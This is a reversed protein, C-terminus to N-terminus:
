KKKRRYIISLNNFTLVKMEGILQLPQVVRTLGKLMLLDVAKVILVFDNNEGSTNVAAMAKKNLKKIFDTFENSISFPLNASERDQIDM